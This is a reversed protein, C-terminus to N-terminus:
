LNPSAVSRNEDVTVKGDDDVINLNSLHDLAPSCGTCRIVADILVGREHAEMLAGHRHGGAGKQSRLLKWSGLRQAM